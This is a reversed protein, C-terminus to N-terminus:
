SRHIMHFPLLTKVMSGASFLSDRPGLMLSRLEATDRLVAQRLGEIEVADRPVPSPPTDLDFSPQPLNNAALYDSVKSTNSAIRTALGVIHPVAMTNKLPVVVRIFVDRPSTMLMLHCFQMFSLFHIVGM